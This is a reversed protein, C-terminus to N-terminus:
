SYIEEIQHPKSAGASKDLIKFKTILYDCNFINKQLTGTIDQLRFELLGMLERIEGDQNSFDKDALLNLMDGANKYMNELDNKLEIVLTGAM